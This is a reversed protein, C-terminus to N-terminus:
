EHSNVEKSSENTQNTGNSNVVGSSEDVKPNENVTPNDEAGNGHSGAAADESDDDDALQTAAWLLDADTTELSPLEDMTTLGFHQMFLDTVGYLIPRGVADLRGVETILERQLLTRLVGGCDVGRVSEVQIRTVPQRYAVIALAELAASSLRSNLDLNLFDEIPQAALPMSVLTYKGNREQLRIGSSREVYDEALQDLAAQVDELPVDLVEAFQKPEAATEAVFLLSEVLTLLTVPQDDIQLLRLPQPPEGSPDQEDDNDDDDAEDSEASEPADEEPINAQSVTEASVSQESVIEASVSEKSVNEEPVADVVDSNAENSGAEDTSDESALDASNDVDAEPEPSVIGSDTQSETDAKGVTVENINGSIASSTDVNAIEASTLDTNGASSIDNGNSDHPADAEATEAVSESELSREADRNAAPIDANISEENLEADPQDVIHDEGVTAGSKEDNTSSQLVNDPEVMSQKEPEAKETSEDRLEAADETTDPDIKPTPMEAQNTDAEAGNSETNDFASSEPEDPAADPEDKSDIVQTVTIEDDSAFYAKSASRTSVSRDEQPPSEDFTPDATSPSSPRVDPTVVARYWNILPRLVRKILSGFTM